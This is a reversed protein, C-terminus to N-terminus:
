MLSNGDPAPPGWSQTRGLSPDGLNAAITGNSFQTAVLTLDLGSSSTQVRTAAVSTADDHVENGFMARSFAQHSGGSEARDLGNIFDEYRIREISGISNRSEVQALLRTTFNPGNALLRNMRDRLSTATAKWDTRRSVASSWATLLSERAVGPDAFLLDSDEEVRFADSGMSRPVDALFLGWADSLWGVGFMDRRMKGAVEDLVFEDPRAAGFRHNRPFGSGLLLDNDQRVLPRGLPSGVFAGLAATWDQYQRYARSVRRLDEIAEVLQTKLVEIQTALERRRHLLAFLDAQGRMFTRVSSFLWGAIILPLLIALLLLSFPVLLVVAVAAVVVVGAVLVHRRLKKALRKQQEEIESPVDAAAEADQLAKALDQIEKRVAAVAQALRLGVRGTYTQERERAWSRLADQAASIQGAVHPQRQAVVDMRANLARAALVDYPAVTIDQNLYAGVNEPPTYTDTPDPAIRRGNIVIGRRSGSMRPPLEGSRNEADLLTLGAGVFDKWFASLDANATSPADGRGALRTAVRDLVEDVEVWSANTGDAKVGNVVVAFESDNAGFVAGQVLGAVSSSVGRVARDLFARPANRLATGLFSFFLKLAEMVGIPRPPTRQPQVRQRPLVYDHKTLLRAAMDDVASADDEVVWASAGDFLPVPYGNEVGALRVLLESEVADASLHRTYTRAAFIISGPSVPRDDLPGTPISAWLGALSSLAATYHTRRVPGDEQQVILAIGSTPTQANEPAIAVNHWGIWALDANLSEGQLALGIAHIRVLAAEPLANTVAELVALAEDPRPGVIEAGIETFACVRILDVRTLTSLEDQLVCGRGVGDELLIAPIRLENSRLADADVICVRGVLGLTSWDRFMDVLWVLTARRAILVVVDSSASM